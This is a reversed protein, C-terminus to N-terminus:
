VDKRLSVVRADFTDILMQVSSDNLIREETARASEQLTGDPSHQSQPTDENHDHAVAPQPAKHVTFKVKLSVNFAQKLIEELDTTRDKLLGLALTDNVGLMLTSDECSLPVMREIYNKLLANKCIQSVQPWKSRLLELSVNPEAVTATAAKIDPQIDPQMPKEHQKVPTEPLTTYTSPSAPQVPKQEETALSFTDSVGADTDIDSQYGTDIGSEPEVDDYDTTEDADSEAERLSAPPPVPDSKKADAQPASKTEQPTPQSSQQVVPQAMTPREIIIRGNPNKEIAKQIHDLKVIAQDISVVSHLRSLRIFLLELVVQKSLAYRLKLAADSVMEVAFELEYSSYLQAQTRYQQLEEPTCDLMDTKDELLTVLLLSRYHNLLGELFHNVDKGERIVADIISLGNAIARRHACDVIDFFFSKDYVGLIQSVQDFTVSTGCFSIVQDFMSQADRMSGDAARALADAVKKEVQIQESEAIATIQDAIKYQSIRHFDFRQCRSLITSPVRHPETTAFIFVVHSPPEELTKLLANFAEKTLMHVEDIIYVKFKGSSPVFKVSDRLDRIQEIGRNSAGDIEMVDMSNGQIVEICMQCTGCPSTTPGNVCNLARALIRATSTKGVGRSGTFLYAHAIRNLSIANQLTTVIHEQGIVDKFSLPRWKRAIVQFEQQVTDTLM